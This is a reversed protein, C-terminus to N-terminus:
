IKKVKEDITADIKKVLAQVFNQFQFFYLSFHSVNNLPLASRSLFSLLPETYKM